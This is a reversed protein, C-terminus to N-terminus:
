HELLRQEGIRAARHHDRVIAEEEVPDRRVNEAELSIGLDLEAASRPIEVGLLALLPEGRRPARLALLELMALDCAGSPGARGAAGAWGMGVPTSAMIRWIASKLSVSSAGSSTRCDRSSPSKRSACVIAPM